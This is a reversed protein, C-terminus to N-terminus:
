ILNNEKIYNFAASYAEQPSDFTPLDTIDFKVQPIFEIISQFKDFAENNRIECGRKVYLWIGHNIRLWEVVEWQEPANITSYEEAKEKDEDVYAKIYDSVDGRFEGKYNYYPIRLKNPTQKYGKEKLWKAQEFTVYTPKIEM